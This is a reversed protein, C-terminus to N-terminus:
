FDEAEYIETLSASSTTSSSDDEAINRWRGRRWRTMGFMQKASAAEPETWAQELVTMTRQLVNTQRRMRQLIAGMARSTVVTRTSADVGAPKSKQDERARQAPQAQETLSALQALQPPAALTRNSMPRWELIRLAKGNVICEELQLLKLVDVEEVFCGQRHDRNRMRHIRFRRHGLATAMRREIASPSIGTCGAIFVNFSFEGGTDDTDSGRPDYGQEPAMYFASHIRHKPEYANASIMNDYKDIYEYKMYKKGDNQDSRMRWSRPPMNYQANSRVIM